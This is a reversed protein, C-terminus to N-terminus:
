GAGIEFWGRGEEGWSALGDGVGVVLLRGAVLKVWGVWLGWGGGGGGSWDVVM